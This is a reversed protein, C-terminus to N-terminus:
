FRHLRAAVDRFGSDVLAVEEFHRRAEERRGLAEFAVGMSYRLGPGLGAAGPAELIPSLLSVIEAHRGQMALCAAMMELCRERIEVSQLASQFEALAENYLGMEYYAVGLDYRASADDGLAHAMQQRFTDIVEELEHYQGSSHGPLSDELLDDPIWVPEVFEQERATARSPAACKAPAPPVPAAPLPWGGRDASTSDVTSAAREAPTEKAGAEAESGAGTTAGPASHPAPAATGPERALREEEAQLMAEVDAFSTDTLEYEHVEMPESEPEGPTEFVPATAELDDRAVEAPTLGAAFGGTEVPEIEIEIEPSTTEIVFEVPDDTAHTGPTRDDDAHAATEIVLTDDDGDLAATAGTGAPSASEDTVLAAPPTDAGSRPGGPVPALFEVAAANKEPPDARPAAATPDTAPLEVRGPELAFRQPRPSTPPAVVAAADAADGRAPEPREEGRRNGVLVRLSRMKETYRRAAVDDGADAARQALRQVIEFAAPFARSEELKELIKGVPADAPFRELIERCREDLVQVAEESDARVHDLYDAFSAAAEARLGQEFRLRALRYRVELRNPSLRLVKRCLAVANNFLGLGTYLDIANEFHHCAQAIDEKRLYLDGMQNHLSPNSADGTVASKLEALAADWNERQVFDRARRQHTSLKGL